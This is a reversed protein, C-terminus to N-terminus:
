RNEVLVICTGTSPKGNLWTLNKMPPQTQSMQKLPPQWAGCCVNGPLGQYKGTSQTAVGWGVGSIGTSEVPIEVFLYGASEPGTSCPTEPCGKGEFEIPSHSVMIPLYTVFCFSITSGVFHWKQIRQISNYIIQKRFEKQIM